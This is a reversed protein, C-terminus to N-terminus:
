EIERHPRRVIRGSRTQRSTGTTAIPDDAQQVSLQDFEQQQPRTAPKRRSRTGKSSQGGGRTSSRDLNLTTSSDGPPQKLPQLERFRDLAELDKVDEYHLWSDHEHGWGKYKILYQYHEDRDGHRGPLRRQKLIREVEWEEEGDENIIAEPPSDLNALPRSYYDALQSIHFVPHHNWHSPLELRYTLPSLVELIKFPGVYKPWFKHYLQKFPAETLNLGDAKLLVQDGVKFAHDVRRRDAYEKMRAAAAEINQKVIAFVEEDLLKPKNPEQDAIINIPLNPKFRFLV